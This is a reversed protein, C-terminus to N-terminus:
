AANSKTATIQKFEHKILTHNAPDPALNESSWLQELDAFLAKQGAEDLRSFAVKTPGFYTRFFDVAGAANTPMDFEIAIPKIDINTFYPALRQRVTADDGWLIPPQVGPPPPVHTSGIKFMRAVFAGPGWNGMALLGGPKLVRAMESAVIEPRPAFMAGFMTTVVDFTADGYPLAEADGEDFTIALHEAAARARAQELLNPAIDVGTVICGRRALPLATNGTGCAIDLVRAGAPINLSAIFDEAGGTITKAVVGFDGAMWTSRMNSKIQEITPAPTSM